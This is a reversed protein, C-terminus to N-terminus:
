KPHVTYSSFRAEYLYLMPFPLMLKAKESLQAYEVKIRWWFEAVWHYNRLTAIHGRLGYWHVKTRQEMVAGQDTQCKSLIKQGRTIKHVHYILWSSGLTENLQVSRGFKHLTLFFWTKIEDSFDKLYKFKFLM